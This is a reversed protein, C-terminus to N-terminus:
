RGSSPGGIAARRRPRSRRSRAAHACAGMRGRADSREGVRDPARQSRSRRAAAARAGARVDRRRRASGGSRACTPRRNGALRRSRGCAGADGREGPRPGHSLSVGAGPPLRPDRRARRPGDGGPGTGPALARIARAARSASGEPYRRVDRRLDVLASLSVCGGGAGRLAVTEGPGRRVLSLLRGTVFPQDASSSLGVLARPWFEKGVISARELTRREAPDLSDIRAALLAHISAPLEIADAPGADAMMAALQEAFLPNGESTSTIRRQLDADEVGLAEVLETTEVESLQELELKADALGSRAELLEPRAICLLVLPGTAFAALYELLDLMTPEAWHLDEFSVLLPRRESVRELLRRVAWFLETSPAGGDTPSTVTRLRELVIHADDTGSLVATAAEIGGLDAILQQLPWFTIGSGYPLCRGTAVDAVDELEMALERALRSKGIGAAGLMAVIRCRREAFAEKVLVRLTELEDVRNVLPADLRRAYGAAEADVEDVRFRAVPANKGKASFRERPGVKVADKVLPYTATGILITGPEAAQELRKALNVADGTVFTEGTGPDGAVVEGTNVGIRCSLGVGLSEQLEASLQVLRRQMATAAHVARLADDEHTSPIGFVAMVEDGRFREVTGGHQEIIETMAQAYRAMVRRTTEPDTAEGLSTSGVVDCFLITVTKRVEFGERVGEPLATGCASCFRASAANAEGCHDCLAM